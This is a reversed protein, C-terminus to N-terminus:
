RAIEKAEDSEYHGRGRTPVSGNKQEYLKKWTSLASKSVGLNKACKNVGLEKHERWYTVADRKFDKTYQTSM